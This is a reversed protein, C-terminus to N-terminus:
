GELFNSIRKKLDSAAHHSRSICDIKSFKNTGQTGEMDNPNEAYLISRSANILCPIKTGDKAANLTKELEGGQAGVGPILYPMPGSIKRIASIRGPHTAGVVLGLNGHRNWQRVKEAVHLHLHPLQFDQSGSNSTLCLVFVGKSQHDSFPEISDQGMYPNVTVADCRFHDLLAHAYRKSSHGIDGRKADAIIPMDDPIVKLVREFLKFGEVGLAEFYSLNPKMASAYFATAEIVERLFLFIGESETGFPEPILDPDPDLGICLLSGTRKVRNELKECFNM